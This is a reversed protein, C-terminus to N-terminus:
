IRVQNGTVQHDYLPCDHEDFRLITDEDVPKTEVDIPHYGGLPGEGEFLGAGFSLASSIM